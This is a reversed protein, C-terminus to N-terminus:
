LKFYSNEITNYQWIYNIGTILASNEADNIWNQTDCSWESIMRIYQHAAWSFHM